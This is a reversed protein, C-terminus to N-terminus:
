IPDDPESLYFAECFRSCNMVIIFETFALRNQIIWLKEYKTHYNDQWYYLVHSVASFPLKENHFEKIPFLLLISFQFTLTFFLRRTSLIIIQSTYLLVFPLIILAPQCKMGTFVRGLTAALFFDSGCCFIDNCVKNNSIEKEQLSSVENKMVHSFM